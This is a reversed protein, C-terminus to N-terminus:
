SLMDLIDAPATEVGVPVRRCPTGAAAYHELLPRTRAAYTELKRAIEDVSDDVRGARDGGSNRAIRAYVTEAPCELAVVLVVELIGAVDRAQGAHRPLGNLIVLDGAGAQEQRLFDDLIARAIHFTENELLAGGAMVSRVFAVDDDGLGAGGREAVERLRAGFDFHHCRRGRFGRAALADGL